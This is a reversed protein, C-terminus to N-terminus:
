LAAQVAAHYKEWRRQVIGTQSALLTPLDKAALLTKLEAESDALATAVARQSESQWQQRAQQVLESTTRVVAYQSQLM